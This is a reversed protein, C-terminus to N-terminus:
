REVSTSGNPCTLLAAWHDSRSSRSSRVSASRIPVPSSSNRPGDSTEPVTTAAPSQSQNPSSPRILVTHRHVGTDRPGPGGDPCHPSPPLNAAASMESQHRRSTVRDRRSGRVDHVASGRRTESRRHHSRGPARRSGRRARCRPEPLFVFLTAGVIPPVQWTETVPDEFDWGDVEPAMLEITHHSTYSMRPLASMYVTTIEPADHLTLALESAVLTNVDGYHHLENGSRFFFGINWVATAAVIVGMGLTITRVRRPRPPLVGMCVRRWRTMGAVAGVAALPAASSWRQTQVDITMGVGILVGWWGIALGGYRRRASAATSVAIGSASLVALPLGLLPAGPRYQGGTSTAFPLLAADRAQRLLVVTSSSGTLEAEDDLWDGWISVQDARSNWDEPEARYHLGLPLFALAAGAVLWACLQLSSSAIRERHRQNVVYFAVLIITIPVLIKTATYAYQALGVTVGAVVAHTRRGDLFAVDVLYLLSVLALADPANNLAVRSMFLHYHFAALLLAAALGAGPGFLRRALLYTVAVTATGFVVNVAIPGRLTDDGFLRMGVSQVYAYLTGHDFYGTTFPDRISGQIVHQADLAFGSGDGNIPYPFRGLWVSRLLLAVVVSGGFAWQEVTSWAPTSPITARGYQSRDSWIAALALASLGLLWAIMALTHDATEPLDHLLLVVATAQVTAVGLVWRQPAGLPALRASGSPGIVDSM